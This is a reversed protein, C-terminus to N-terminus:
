KHHILNTNFYQLTGFYEEKQERCKWHRKLNRSFTSMQSLFTIIILFSGILLTSLKKFAIKQGLDFICFYHKCLVMLNPVEVWSVHKLIQKSLCDRVFCKSCFPTIWSFQVLFSFNPIQKQTNKVAIRLTDTRSPLSPM